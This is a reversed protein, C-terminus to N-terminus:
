SIFIKVKHVLWFILIIFTIGTALLIDTPLIHTYFIIQKDNGNCPLPPFRVSAFGLGGAVFSLSSDSSVRRAFSSMLTILPIFPVFVGICICGLHIYKIRKKKEWLRANIPFWIKWFLAATLMFWWLAASLTSYVQVM